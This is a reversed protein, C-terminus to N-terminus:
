VKVLATAEWSGPAAGPGATYVVTAGVEVARSRDLLRTSHFTLEAGDHSRVTGLGRAADFAVVRGALM